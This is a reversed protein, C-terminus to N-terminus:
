IYKTEKLIKTKIKPIYLASNEYVDNIDYIKFDSSNLNFYQYFEKIFSEQTKIQFLSDENSPNKFSNILSELEKIKDIHTFGLNKEFEYKKLLMEIIEKRKKDNAIITQYLAIEYQGDEESFNFIDFDEYLYPNIELALTYLKNSNDDTYFTVDDMCLNNKAMVSKYFRLLTYYLNYNILKNFFPANNLIDIERESLQLKNIVNNQMTVLSLLYNIINSNFLGDYSKIEDILEEKVILPAQYLGEEMNEKEDRLLSISPYPFILNRDDDDIFTM